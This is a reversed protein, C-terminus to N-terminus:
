TPQPKHGLNNKLMKVNKLFEPKEQETPRHEALKTNVSSTVKSIIETM